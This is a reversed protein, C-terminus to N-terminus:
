EVTVPTGVRTKSYITPIVSRPGRICGHSAPYRPVKGIHHGVGTWTLRMWYPMPAGVFEGGEPVGAPTEEDYLRNGEADYVKGYTNSAKNKDKELIEYEGAPTPHSGKGSSIPYDIAVEEGNMLYGRQLDRSIVVRSNLASTDSLLEENKWVKSTKPYDKEAKFHDYTGVDYPNYANGDQDILKGDPGVTYTPGTACSVLFLVTLSAFVGSLKSILNM